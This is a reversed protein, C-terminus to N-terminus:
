ISPSPVVLPPPALPAVKDVIKKRSKSSGEGSDAATEQRVPSVPRRPSSKAIAQLTGELMLSPDLFQKKKKDSGMSLLTALRSQEQARAARIKKKQRTVILPEYEDIGDLTGLTSGKDLASDLGGSSSDALSSVTPGLSGSDSTPQGSSTRYENQRRRRSSSPNGSSVESEEKVTSLAQYFSDRLSSGTSSVSDGGSVPSVGLTMPSSPVEKPDAERPQEEDTEMFTSLRVVERSKEGLPPLPGRRFDDVRMLADDMTLTTVSDSDPDRAIPRYHVMPEDDTEDPLSGARCSQAPRKPDYHAFYPSSKDLWVPFKMVGAMAPSSADQDAALPMYELELAPITPKPVFNPLYILFARGMGMLRIFISPIKYFQFTLLAMPRSRREPCKRYGIYDWAVTLLTYLVFFAGSIIVFFKWSVWITLTMVPIRVWDAAVSYCSYFQFWKLVVTGFLTKHRTFFLVRFFEYAYAHEAM